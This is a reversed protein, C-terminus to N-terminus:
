NSRASRALRQRLFWGLSHGPNIPAAAKVGPNLRGRSAVRMVRAIVVLSVPSVRSNTRTSARRAAGFTMRAIVSSLANWFRAMLPRGTQPVVAIKRNGPDSGCREGNSHRSGHILQHQHTEPHLGVQLIVPWSKSRKWASSRSLATRSIERSGGSRERTKLGIKVRSSSSAWNSPRAILRCFGTFALTSMFTFERFICGLNRSTQRYDVAIAANAPSQVTAKSGVVRAELVPCTATPIANRPVRFYRRGEVQVSDFVPRSGPQSLASIM